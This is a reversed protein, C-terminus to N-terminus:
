VKSDGDDFVGRLHFMRGNKWHAHAASHESSSLLSSSAPQPRSSSSSSGMGTIFAPVSALTAPGQWLCCHGQHPSTRLM